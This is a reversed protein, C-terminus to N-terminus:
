AAAPLPAAARALSRPLSSAPAFPGFVAVADAVVTGIEAIVEDTVGQSRARAQAEALDNGAVASTALEAVARLQSTPQLNVIAVRLGEIPPLLSYVAAQQERSLSSDRGFLGAQRFYAALAQKSLGTAGLITSAPTSTKGQANM